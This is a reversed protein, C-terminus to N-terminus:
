GFELMAGEKSNLLANSIGLRRRTEKWYRKEHKLIENLIDEQNGTVPKKQSAALLAALSLIGFDPELTLDQPYVRGAEPVDLADCSNQFFCKPDTVAGLPDDVIEVSKREALKKDEIIKDFVETRQRAILIIRIAQRRNNDIATVAAKLLQTVEDCKNEAYDIVLCLDKNAAFPLGFPDSSSDGAAVRQLVDLNVFGAAWKSKTHGPSIPGDDRLKGALEVMLRTKGRGSGGTILRIALPKKPMACWNIYDDLEAGRFDFPIVQYAPNLLAATKLDQPRKQRPDPVIGETTVRDIWLQRKAPDTLLEALSGLNLIDAIAVGAKILSEIKKSMNHYGFKGKGIKYRVANRPHM